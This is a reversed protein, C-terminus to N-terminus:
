RIAVANGPSGLGNPIHLPAAVFFFTWRGDAQCRASLTELDFMEGLTLGLAPIVRRHLSGIAPDGPVAEVAPNDCCLAAIGSNWLLRAMGEDASLGTFTPEPAYADRAGQDLALYAATWGTRVCAIDGAQLEVGQSALTAELDDTTIPTPELASCPRGEREHWAAVDILVGRGAVGHETLHHIGLGNPGETPNQTRGGWFGHERCRVHNLADWQTSGQLHFNDLKDDMENRNLEFIVHEYPQRGFFPPNPLNLPLDLSIVEGTSVSAAASAVRAPTIHNMTGLADDPGYVDWAHRIGLGPIEPLEDFAPLDHTPGDPM